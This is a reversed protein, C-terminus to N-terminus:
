SKIEVLLNSPPDSSASSFMVGPVRAATSVMANVARGAAANGGSAAAAPWTGGGCGCGCGRLGSMAGEDCLPYTLQWHACGQRLEVPAQLTQSYGLPQTIHTRATTPPTGM